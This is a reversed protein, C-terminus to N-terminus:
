LWRNSGSVGSSSVMPASAVATCDPRAVYAPMEDYEASRVRSAAASRRSMPTGSSIWWGDYEISLRQTSSPSGDQEVHEPSSPMPQMANEGSACPISM